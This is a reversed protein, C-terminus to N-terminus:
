THQHGCDHICNELKLGDSGYCFECDPGCEGHGAKQMGQFAESFQKGAEKKGFDSLRFKAEDTKEDAEQMLYGERMLKQLHFLLVEESAALLPLMTKMSVANALEEGQLWYMVQLIEDRWFLAQLAEKDKEHHFGNQM